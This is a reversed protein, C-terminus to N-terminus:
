DEYGDSVPEFSFGDVSDGGEADVVSWSAGTLPNSAWWQGHEFDVQVRTPHFGHVSHHWRRFAREVRKGMGPTNRETKLM